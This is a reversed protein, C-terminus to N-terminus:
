LSGDCTFMAPATGSVTTTCSIVGGRKLVYQDVRVGNRNTMIIRSSAKELAARRNSAELRIADDADDLAKAGQQKALALRKDADRYKQYEVADQKEREARQEAKKGYYSFIVPVSVVLLLGAVVYHAASYGGNNNSM